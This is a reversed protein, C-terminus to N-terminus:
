SASAGARAPAAQGLGVEALQMRDRTLRYGARSSLLAQLKDFDEPTM